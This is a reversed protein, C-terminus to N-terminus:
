GTSHRQREGKKCSYVCSWCVNLSVWLDVSFNLPVLVCGVSNFLSTAWSSSSLCCSLTHTHSLCDSFHLLTTDFLSSSLPLLPSTHFSILFLFFSKTMTPTHSLSFLSVCLHNSSGSFCHMGKLVDVYLGPNGLHLVFQLFQVVEILQVLDCGSEPLFLFLFCPQGFSHALLCEHELFRILPRVSHAVGRVCGEELCLVSCCLGFRVRM